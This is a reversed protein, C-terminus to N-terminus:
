NIKSERERQRSRAAEEAQAKKVMATLEVSNHLQHVVTALILEVQNPIVFFIGMERFHKVLVSQIIKNDVRWGAIVSQVREIRLCQFIFLDIPIRETNM